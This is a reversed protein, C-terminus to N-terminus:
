LFLGLKVSAYMDPCIWLNVALGHLKHIIEKGNKKEVININLIRNKGCLQFDIMKIFNSILQDQNYLPIRFALSKAIIGGITPYIRLAQSMPIESIEHASLENLPVFNVLTKDETSGVYNDETLKNNKGKYESAYIKYETM